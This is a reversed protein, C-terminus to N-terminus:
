CFIEFDSNWGVVKEKFYKNVQKASSGQFKEREKKNEKGIERVECICKRCKHTLKDPQGSDKNFCVTPKAIECRRCIKDM